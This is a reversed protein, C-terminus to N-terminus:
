SAEISKKIQNIKDIMNEFHSGKWYIKDCKKCYWFEKNNEYSKKPIKGKIKEKKVEEVLSNCLICRSLILKSEIKIGKIVKMIQEDIDTTKIEITEINERKARSILNKDRTVMVRNEKNCIDILKSDDIEGEAFFTDLGYIRMWKALTGLMQDCLFKM